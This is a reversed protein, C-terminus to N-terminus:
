KLELKFNEFILNSVGECLIEELERSISQSLGVRHCMSHCAEHILSRTMEDRSQNEELQISKETPNYQGVAGYHLALNKVVSVSVRQGFVNLSFKPPLKKM